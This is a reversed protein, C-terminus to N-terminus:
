RQELIIGSVVDLVGIALLIGLFPMRYDAFITELTSVEFVRALVLVFVGLMIVGVFILFGGLAVAIRSLRRPSMALVMWLYDSAFRNVDV